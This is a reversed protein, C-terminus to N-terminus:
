QQILGLFFAKTIHNVNTSGEVHAKLDKIGVVDCITKIARHCNLGYGEPKPAVTIKTSGFQTFFDHFVTHNNYLKIHMLKQGARNKSKRLASKPDIAKGISFGAIGNKNGTVSLVSVRRKRGYNGKMNFVTKLELVRTDFGDFTEDGDVPDPPGISRGPMKGGTWGRDMPSVKAYRFKGMQDRLKVLKQEREPDEPLQQQQIIERGRIIPSSLGPWVINAKGVGIMQGKNLDKINRKNVNKARGRKKGANSVSTIGKWLDEAPM